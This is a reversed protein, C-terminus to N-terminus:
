GGQCAPDVGVNDILRCSGIRVALCIRAPRDLATIPTLDEADVVEVYEITTPGANEVTRRIESIVTAVPRQGSRLADRAAFLARNLSAAQKREIASLYVNRGIRPTMGRYSRVIAM